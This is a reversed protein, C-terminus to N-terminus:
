LLRLTIPRTLRIPIQRDPPLLKICTACMRLASEAAEGSVTEYAACQIIALLSVCDYCPEVRVRTTIV